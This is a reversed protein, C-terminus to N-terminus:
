RIAPRQFGPLGGGELIYIGEADQHNRRFGQFGALIVIEQELV